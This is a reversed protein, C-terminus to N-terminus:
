TQESMCTRTPDRDSIKKYIIRRGGLDVRVSVSTGLVVSKRVKGRHVAIRDAEVIQGTRPGDGAFAGCASRGVAADAGALRHSDEGAGEKGGAGVRHDDLLIDRALAVRQREAAVSGARASPM